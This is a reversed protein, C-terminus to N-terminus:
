RKSLDYPTEQYVYYNLWNSFLLNAHGRWRVLPYKAPDDEPFYYKPVEIDLGKNKDRFYEEQLTLPDYESHGTVFIQKEDESIVLYVGAEESISLTKLEPVKDIDSQRIETHRSQPVYYLDDFGRLLKVEPKEITHPFVGFMKQPLPYKPVGYHYYLGAQAGWCIHLTSTVHEKTWEMIDTLEEWYTVEEFPLHEIPAGTIIMGDFKEGKIQDFTKYFTLLYDKSTNKSEHTQPHLLTIEVQLPTNGLLRLIQTETVQKKPMLNLIVIKLERIDQRIARHEDMIFINEKALVEGAPLDNPIKIPM